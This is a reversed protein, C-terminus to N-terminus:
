RALRVSRAGLGDFPDAPGGLLQAIHRGRSPRARTRPWLSMTMITKGNVVIGPIWSMTSKQRLPKGRVAEVGDYLQGARDVGFRVVPEPLDRLRQTRGAHDVETSQGALVVLVKALQATRDDAGRDIGVTGPAVDGEPPGLGLMEDFPAVALQGVCEEGVLAAVREVM